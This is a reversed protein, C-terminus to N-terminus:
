YATVFIVRFQLIKTNLSSSDFKSERYYRSLVASRVDEEMKIERYDARPSPSLDLDAPEIGANKQLHLM